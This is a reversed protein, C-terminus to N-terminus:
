LNDITPEMQNEVMYKAAGDTLERLETAKDYAKKANRVNEETLPIDQKRFQRSLERAFAESGTIERLTDADIQDTYGM